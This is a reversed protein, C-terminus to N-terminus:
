VIRELEKAYVLANHILNFSPIDRSATEKDKFVVYEGDV